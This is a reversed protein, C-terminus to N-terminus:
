FKTTTYPAVTVVRTKVMKGKWWKKVCPLQELFAARYDASTWFYVYYCQSYSVIVAVPILQIMVPFGVFSPPGNQPNFLSMVLQSYFWSASFVTLFVTMSKMAKQHSKLTSHVQTNKLFRLKQVFLVMYGALYVVIVAANMAVLTWNAMNQIWSPFIMKPICGPGYFNEDDWHIIVLITFLVGFFLGPLTCTIIMAIVNDARYKTPLAVTALRDLALGVVTSISILQVYFYTIDMKFCTQRDMWVDNFAMIGGCVEFVLCITDYIALLCILIGCKSRLSKKRYTAIIVNINGFLGFPSLGLTPLLVFIMPPPGDMMPPPDHGHFM